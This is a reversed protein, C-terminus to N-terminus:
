NNILSEFLNLFEKKVENFNISNNNITINLKSEKIYEDNLFIGLEVDLIDDDIQKMIDLEEKTILDNLYKKYILTQVKEEIEYYNKLRPKIPRIIDSLYAESADHLLCILQIKKSYGRSKAEYCCHISHCAVTYFEKLHGNGRCLFSLAHCIDNIDIQNININLPDIKKGTYTRMYNM